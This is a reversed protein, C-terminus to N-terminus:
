RRNHHPIPHFPQQLPQQHSSLLLLALPLPLPLPRLSPADRRREHPFTPQHSIRLPRLPSGPPLAPLLDLHTQLRITPLPTTLPKNTHSVCSWSVPSAPVPSPSPFPISSPCSVFITSSPQTACPQQQKTGPCLNDEQSTRHRISAAKPTCSSPVHLNIISEHISICGVMDDLDYSIMIGLWDRGQCRPAIKRSV